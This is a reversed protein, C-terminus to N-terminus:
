PQEGVLSPVRGAAWDQTYQRLWVIFEREMDSWTYAPDGYCPRQLIYEIWRLRDTSTEFWEQWFGQQDYHAIHEFCLALRQYLSKTWQRPQFGGLVFRRLANAFKAKDAATAFKTPTFRDPDFPPYKPRAM